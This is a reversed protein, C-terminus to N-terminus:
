NIENYQLIRKLGKMVLDPDTIHRFTLHSSILESSGGTLLVIPESKYKTKLLNRYFEIEGVAGMVAGSRLATATDKGPFPCEGVAAVQPLAKTFSHLAKLRMDIGASIMGGVFTGDAEVIDSTLATGADVVLLLEKPRLTMAGVAAAIRDAGLTQPSAYGIKVPLPVQASLVEVRRAVNKYEQRFNEPHRGRVSCLIAGDIEIGKPLRSVISAASGDACVGSAVAEDGQWLVFKAATNGEDITLM